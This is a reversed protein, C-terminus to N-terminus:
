CYYSVKECAEKYKIHIKILGLFLYKNLYYSNTIAKKNIGSIISFLIFYKLKTYHLLEFQSFKLLLKNSISVDIIAKCKEHQRLKLLVNVSPDTSSLDLFTSQKNHIRYYALFQNLYYFKFGAKALRVWLDYDEANKINLSEDFGGILNIADSKVIVTLIPISIQNVILSRFLNIGSTYNTLLKFDENLDGISDIVLSNGFVLDISKDKKFLKVQFELKNENWLDDSDLFAILEGDSLRIAHNRASAQGANNQFVYKIRTDFLYPYVCDATGDNSGDDVIILEWKNYTQNLVSQISFSIYKAANYAPM